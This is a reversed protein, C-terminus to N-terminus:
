PRQLQELVVPFFNAAMQQAGEKTFHVRDVFYRGSHPILAANDVWGTGQERAIKALITNYQWIGELTAKVTLGPTFRAISSLENKQLKDMELLAEQMTDYHVSPDYLTAFSSLVVKAGTTRAVSVLTRLHSEFTAVAEAPISDLRKQRHLTRKSNDIVARQQRYERYGNRVRIYFMSYNLARMLWPPKKHFGYPKRHIHSYDPKFDLNARVAKLDNYAHYIIVVDPDFPMVRLALNGISQATDFGPVGANIVRITKEPLAEALLRGLRGPWNDEHSLNINATTSAGITAIRIENAPKAYTLEQGDSLFGHADIFIPARGQQNPHSGAFRISPMFTIGTFPHWRYIELVAGAHPDLEHLGIQFGRGRAWSAIRTTLELTAFLVFVALLSGIVYFILTRNRGPPKSSRPKKLTM